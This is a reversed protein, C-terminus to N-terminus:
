SFLIVKKCEFNMCEVTRASIYCAICGIRRVYVTESSKVCLAGGCIAHIYLYITKKKSRTGRHM